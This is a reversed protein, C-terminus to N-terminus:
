FPFSVTSGLTEVIAQNQSIVKNIRQELSIPNIASTGHQGTSQGGPGSTKSVAAQSSNASPASQSSFVVQSSSSSRSSSNNL